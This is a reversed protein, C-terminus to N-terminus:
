NSYTFASKYSETHQRQVFIGSTGGYVAKIDLTLTMPDSAKSFDYVLNNHANDYTSSGSLALKWWDAGLKTSSDTMPVFQCWLIKSYAYGKLGAIKDPSFTAKGGSVAVKYNNADVNVVAPDFENMDSFLALYKVSDPLGTVVLTLNGAFPRKSEVNCSVLGVTLAVILTIVSIYKKM